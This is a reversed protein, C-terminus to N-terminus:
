SAPAAAPAATAAASAPALLASLRAAHERVFYGALEAISQYEFFLTKPLSGFSRELQGTLDMALISDIGYRELPAQPDLRHAALKLVQAFQGRLFEVCREDLEGAAPTAVAPAAAAAARPTAEGFLRSRLKAADGQVALTQAAGLALARHFARVGHERDMARMGVERQLRAQSAADPAMGGDRWLPWLLSVCRGRRLGQEVLANRHAAFADLFGNAAAYDGQGANGFASVASSFLAFFDLDFGASAADLHVSGAVKPALVAAAQDATKKLLYDDAIAGASHVIGDLRGFREGLAQLQANTDAADSLDLACYHLREGHRERLAAFREAREGALPGRGSLVVQAHATAVLIEDAFLRGLGGLGGTILYVGHEKFALPATEPADDLAQWRLTERRAGRYRVQADAAGAGAEARLRAALAAADLDADVQILQVALAPNEQAATRLLGALGANLAGEGAGAVVCQLLARGGRKDSLISRLRDLCALTLATYREAIGGETRLAQWNAGDGPDQEFDPLDCVVVHRAAFAEGDGAPLSQERWRPHALLCSDEDAAAAESDVGGILERASLGLLRVCVEGAEDCLDIDLKSVRADAGGGAAHRVWAYLREGADRYRRLADLAFPLAARGDGRQAILAMGAQVASDLAAPHLVFGERESADPLEIRALLEGEGCLVEAVGRLSAGLEIGHAAIAAYLREAPLPAAIMRARLGALDLPAPAADALPSAHGQFHVREDQSYLEFDIGEDAADVGDDPYLALVATTPADVALPQAWVLNRLEWERSVQPTARELAARALELYAVGPLVRQGRVRHDRLFFESGDFDSAFALRELDSVNRHLLPHLKDAGAGRPRAYERILALADARALKKSKLQSVVYEVFDIM